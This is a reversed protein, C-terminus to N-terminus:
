SPCNVTTASGPPAIFSARGVLQVAAQVQAPTLTAHGLNWVGIAASTYFEIMAAPSAVAGLNAVVCSLQIQFNSWTNTIAPNAINAQIAQSTLALGVPIPRSGPGGPECPIVLFPTPVPQASGGSGGGSTGTGTGGGPGCREIEIRIVVKGCDGDIVITQERDPTGSSMPGGDLLRGAAPDLGGQRYPFRGRQPQGPLVPDRQRVSAPARQPYQARYGALVRGQRSGVPPDHPGSQHHQQLDREPLLNDNDGSVLMLNSGPKPAPPTDQFSFQIQELDIATIWHREFVSYVEYLDFRSEAIAQDKCPQWNLAGDPAYGGRYWMVPQPPIYPLQSGSLANVYMNQIYQTEIAHNDYPEAQRIDAQQGEVYAAIDAASIIGLYTSPVMATVSWSVITRLYQRNSTHAANCTNYYGTLLLSTNGGLSGGIVAAIRGTVNGIAEDLKEIFAMIYDVEFQLVRGPGYVYPAGTVATVDFRSGYASNPLDFSIVTSNEGAKKGEIIFWNAMDVAEEARSRSRAM